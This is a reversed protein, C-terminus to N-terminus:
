TTPMAWSSGSANRGPRVWSTSASAGAIGSRWGRRSAAWPGFSRTVAPCCEVYRDLPLDFSRGGGDLVHWLYSNAGDPKWAGATARKWRRAPVFREPSAAWHRQDLRVGALARRGLRQVGPSRREAANPPGLYRRDASFATAWICRGPGRLESAAPRGGYEVRGGRFRGRRCRGRAHRGSAGGGREGHLQVAASVGPVAAAQCRVVPGHFPHAQVSGVDRGRCHGLHRGRRRGVAPSGPRRRRVSDGAIERRSDHSDRRAKPGGGRGPNRGCAM